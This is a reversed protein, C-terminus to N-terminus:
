LQGGFKLMRTWALPERQNRGLPIINDVLVLPVALQLIGYVLILFDWGNCQQLDTVPL